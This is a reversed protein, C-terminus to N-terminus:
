GDIPTAPSPIPLATSDLNVDNDRFEVAATLTAIDFDPQQICAGILSNAVHGSGVALEAGDSVMLGCLAARDVDLRDLAVTSQFVGLATGGADPCSPECAAPRTDVLELETVRVNADFHALLGAFRARQVAVGSGELSAGVASIGMGSTPSSSGSGDRVLVDTLRSPGADGFFAGAHRYEAVEVRTLTVSGGDQVALGYGVSGDAARGRLGEVVADSLTLTSGELLVAVAVDGSDEIRARVVEATAGSELAL